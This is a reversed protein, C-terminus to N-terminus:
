YKGPKVYELEEYNFSLHKGEEGILLKSTLLDADTNVYLENYKGLETVPLVITDRLDFPTIGTIYIKLDRYIKFEHPDDFNSKFIWGATSKSIYFAAEKNIGTINYHNRRSNKRKLYEVSVYNEKSKLGYSKFVRRTLIDINNLGIVNQLDSLDFLKYGKNLLDIPDIKITKILRLPNNKETIYFYITSNNVNEKKSFQRNNRRGTMKYVADNSINVELKWSNTYKIINIERDVSLSVESIKSLQDEEQKLRLQQQKLMLFIGSPTENVIFKKPNLHGMLLEAATKDETLLHPNKSAKYKNTINIIEGTWEDYYVYYKPLPREGVV